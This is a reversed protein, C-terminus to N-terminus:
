AHPNGEHQVFMLLFHRPLARLSLNCRTSLRIRTHRAISSCCLQPFLNSLSLSNRVLPAPLCPHHLSNRPIVTLRFRHKRISDFLFFLFPRCLPPSAPPPFPQNSAIHLRARIHIVYLWALCQPVCTSTNDWHSFIASIIAQSRDSYPNWLVLPPLVAIPLTTRDSLPIARLHFSVPETCNVSIRFISEKTAPAPNPVLQM